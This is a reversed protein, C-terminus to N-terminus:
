KKGSFGKAYYDYNEFEQDALELMGAMDSEPESARKTDEFQQKQKETLNPFYKLVIANDM